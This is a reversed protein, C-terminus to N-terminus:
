LLARRDFNDLVLYYRGDATLTGCRLALEQGFGNMAAYEKACDIAEADHDIGLARAAGLRLAVMSLLGSGTGVDLM